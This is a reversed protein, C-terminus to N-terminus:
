ANPLRWSKIVEDVLSEEDDRIGDIRDRVELVRDVRTRRYETAWQVLGEGIHLSEGFFGRLTVCSGWSLPLKWIKTKADWRSGPIAKIVEKETWQTTVSIDGSIADIEAFPM